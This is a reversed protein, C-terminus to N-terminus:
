LMSWTDSATASRFADRLARPTTTMPQHPDPDDPAGGGTTLVRSRPQGIGTGVHHRVTDHRHATNHRVTDHRYATDHRVASQHGDPHHVVNHRHASQRGDPTTPPTTGSPARTPQPRDSFIAPRGFPQYLKDAGATTEHRRSCQARIAARCGTGAEDGTGARIPSGM